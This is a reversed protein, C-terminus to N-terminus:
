CSRGTRLGSSPLALEIRVLWIRGCGKFRSHQKVLNWVCSRPVRVDRCTCRTKKASSHSPIYLDCLSFISHREVPCLHISICLLFLPVSLSSFYTYRLMSPREHLKVYQSHTNAAKPIWCESRMRWIAMQPGDPEVINKWMIEYVACNEFFFTVPWLIRTKTKEIVNTHFMEWVLFFQPSTIFFTDQDEHLTVM